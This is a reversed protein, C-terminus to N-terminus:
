VKGMQATGCCVASRSDLLGEVEWLFPQAGGLWCGGSQSLHAVALEHVGAVARVLCGDVMQQFHRSEPLHNGVWVQGSRHRQAELLPRVGAGGEDVHVHVLVEPAVSLVEGM